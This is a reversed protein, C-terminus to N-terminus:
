MYVDLKAAAIESFINPIFKLQLFSKPVKVAYIGTFIEPKDYYDAPQRAQVSITIFSCTVKARLEANTWIKANWNMIESGVM